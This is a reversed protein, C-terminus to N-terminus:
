PACTIGFVDVDALVGYHDSPWLTGGDPARGPTNLVIRSTCAAAPGRRVGAMLVYDVRRFVTPTDARVRQWVTLGPVDPNAARFADVFGGGNTLAQYASARDGTNLDGMLLAPGAAARARVVEAVHAVQCDDRATHTSFVALPGWPTAIEVQLLVRPDLRRACRPLDHVESALIPYRSLVAPGEAFNMMWVILHNVFPVPFVRATARTHVHHLGLAGAIRAAVNGRGRGVSAEQLAVVDPALGRLEDIVMALRTELHDGDGALGSAPGGHLLNFTIVRLPRGREGGAASGAMAVLVLLLALAIRV